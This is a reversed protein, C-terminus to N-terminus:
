AVDAGLPSRLLVRAFAVREEEDTLPSTPFVVRVNAFAVREEEQVFAFPAVPLTDFVREFATRDDLLMLM